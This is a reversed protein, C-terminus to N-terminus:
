PKTDVWGVHFRHTCATKISQKDSNLGEEFIHVVVRTIYSISCVVYMYMEYTRTYYMCVHVKLYYYYKNLDVSEILSYM